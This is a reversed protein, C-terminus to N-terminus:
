DGTDRLAHAAQALVDKGNGALHDLGLARLDDALDDHDNFSVWGNSASAVAGLAFATAMAECLTREAEQGRVDFAGAETAAQLCRALAACDDGTFTITLQGHSFKEVQM